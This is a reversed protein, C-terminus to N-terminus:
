APIQAGLQGICGELALKAMTEKNSLYSMFLRAGPHDFAFDSVSLGRLTM